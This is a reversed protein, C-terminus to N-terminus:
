LEFINCLSLESLNASHFTEYFYNNVPIVKVKESNVLDQCTLEKYIVDDEFGEGSNGLYTILRSGGSEYFLSETLWTKYEEETMCDVAPIDFEDAYNERFIVLYNTGKEM